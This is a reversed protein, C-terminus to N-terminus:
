IYLGGYKKIERASQERFLLRSHSRPLSARVRLSAFLSYFLSRRTQNSEMPATLRALPERSIQERPGCSIRASVSFRSRPLIYRRNDRVNRCNRASATRLPSPPPANFSCSCMQQARTVACTACRGHERWGIFRIMSKFGALLVNAPRALLRPSRGDAYCERRLSRTFPQPGVSADCVGRDRENIM